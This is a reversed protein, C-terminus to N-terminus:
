EGDIDRDFVVGKREKPVLNASIPSAGQPTLDPNRFNTCVIITGFLFFWGACKAQNTVTSIMNFCM